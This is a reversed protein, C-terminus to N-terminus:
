CGFDKVSYRTGAVLSPVGVIRTVATAVSAAQHLGGNTKRAIFRDVDPFDSSNSKRIGAQMETDIVGPDINIAVFPFRESEQELAVSRVFHDLGAKAACYLSWGAYGKLAAGSSINALIKRCPHRQFKSIAVTLFLLASSFNTNINELLAKPDHRSSPGIPDLTGANNFIIIEEWPADSLPTLADSISEMATRPSSLDAQISFRHPATRSFEVVRFGREAFQSCLALGLGKSGGSIIALRSTM